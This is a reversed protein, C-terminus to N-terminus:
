VADERKKRTLLLALAMTLGGILLPVAHGANDAIGTPAPTSCDNIVELAADDALTFAANASDEAIPKGDLMWTTKYAGCEESFTVTKGKPLGEIHIIDGERIWFTGGITFTTEVTTDNYGRYITGSFEGADMGEVSELTFTFQKNKDGFGGTVTKTITLILDRITLKAPTYLVRIDFEENYTTTDIVIREELEEETLDAATYSGKATGSAVPWGDKRIRVSVNHETLTFVRYAAGDVTIDTGQTVEVPEGGLTFAFSYPQTNAHEAGDFIVEEEPGAAIIEIDTRWVAYLENAEGEALGENDAYIQETTSFTVGTGDPKTNWGILSYHERTFSASQVALDITANMPVVQTYTEAGDGMVGGNGHFVITTSKDEKANFRARLRVIKMRSVNGDEDWVNVTDIFNEWEEAVLTVTDGASYTISTAGGNNDLVMWNVFEVGDITGSPAEAIQFTTELAHGVSDVPIVTQLSGSADYICYGDEVEYLFYVAGTKVDLQWRAYLKLIGKVNDHEGDNDGYLEWDPSSQYNMNVGDADTVIPYLQDTNVPTGDELYWGTLRYGPRTAVGPKVNEFSVSEGYDVRYRLAQNNAFWYDTCGPIFVVRVRYTDWKAYLPLDGDPMTVTDRLPVNCEPDEYWGAFYYGDESNTPAPQADAYSKVNSEYPAEVEGVEANNSYFIINHKKRTYLFNVFTADTNNYTYRAPKGTLSLDYRDSESTGGIVAVKNGNEFGAFDLKDEETVFNYKALVEKYQIYGKGNYTLDPTEGPLAEKYYRMTKITYSSTNLRFIISENPMTEVVVMVQNWGQNNNQPDWREGNNYTVGNDGVIPFEDKITHEYLAEITKITHWGYERTYRTGTYAKSNYSWTYGSYSNGNRKLQVYQGNVYGYQPTSTGTTEKYYYGQIQFELKYDERDYYVNVITSGDSAVTVDGALDNWSYHTQYYVSNTNTKTGKTNWGNPLTAETIPDGTHVNESVSETWALDYQKSDNDLGVEDTARQKWYLVTYSNPAGEWQAYLTTDADIATGFRNVAADDSRSWWDGSGDPRTNWGKFIYGKRTPDQPKVTVIGDGYILQPGTFTAGTCNANFVLWYRGTVKAYLDIHRNMTITDGNRYLTGDATNIWGEFDSGAESYDYNVTLTRNAADVRVSDSKLVGVTGDSELVMYRLYWAEKFRAYVSVEDGDAFNPRGGPFYKAALESRLQEWTFISNEDTEAPDHAWGLFTQGYEPTVGPDYFEGVDTIYESALVTSGNYFSYFLRPPTEEGTVAYISFGAAEFEVLGDNAQVTAVFEPEGGDPIHYVSRKGSGFAEDRIRVTVKSGAPQWTKGKARQNENIYIKIDYAALVEESGISVTVPIIDVVANKPLKGSLEIYDRPNLVTGETERADDEAPTEPEAPTESEDAPAATGPYSLTITRIDNKKGTITLTVLEFPGAATLTINKLNKNKVVTDSLTILESDVSLSSNNAAKIEMADLIDTLLVTAEPFIYDAAPRAAGKRMMLPAETPEEIAEEENDGETEEEPEEDSFFVTGESIEAESEENVESVPEGSFVPAPEESPETEESTEGAPEATEEAQAPIAEEAPEEVPEGASEEITEEAPEETSEAAPEETPEPTPEATPAPTPEATPAPTPEETPEATPEASPESYEEAHAALTMYEVPSISGSLMCLMLLMAVVRKVTKKM